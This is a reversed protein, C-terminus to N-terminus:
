VTDVAPEEFGVEVVEWADQGGLLTRMQISWNNYNAKTLRPLPMGGVSMRGSIAM